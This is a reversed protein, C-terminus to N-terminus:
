GNPQRLEGTGEAAVSRRGTLLCVQASRDRVEFAIRVDKAVRPEARIRDGGRLEDVRVAGGRREALHVPVKRLVALSTSNATDWEDVDVSWRASTMLVRRRGVVLNGRGHENGIRFDGLPLFFRPPHDVARPN